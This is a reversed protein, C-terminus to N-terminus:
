FLLMGSFLVPLLVIGLFVTLGNTAPTHSFFKPNEGFVVDCHMEFRVPSEFLPM